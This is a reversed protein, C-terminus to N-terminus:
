SPNRFERLAAMIDVTRRATHEWAFDSQAARRAERGMARLLPPDNLLRLLQAVFADLDGPPYLLGSVGEQLLFTLQGLRPAVVPRGAAMSEMVKLPSFYFNPQPTYPAVTVDMAALYAPMDDHAARGAIVVHRAMGEAAVRARLDALAPGDGVLLLVADPRRTVIRAMADLLFDTGHWPKMSGVFGIVPREGLGHRARMPRGDVAPHFRETDVGNPLVSVREAPVGQALVHNRVADSVAIVHDARQFALAEREAALDKLYLGRFREQEEVLPANVELVRPVGLARAIEAGAGHFLAYREYVADPCADVQRLAALARGPWKGDCVLKGVERRLVIHERMERHLGLRKGEAELEDAAVEPPLALLRAPPCPNGSGPTACLLTVEHGLRSLATVFERVHVSAGKDGLVPIGQDTNLYAIKM